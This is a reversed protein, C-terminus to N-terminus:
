QMRVIRVSERRGGSEFSAFYLGPGVPSGSADRGNWVQEHRGAGFAGDAIRAVLRGQADHVSLRATGGTAMTFALRVDGRAPNPWPQALAVHAPAADDVALADPVPVLVVAHMTGGHLATGAIWGDANMDVVTKMAWGAGSADLRADLEHIEGSVWMVLRQSTIVSPFPVYDVVYSEGLVITGDANVVWARGGNDGPWIPLMSPTHSTDRSWVTPRDMGYVYMTYGVADGLDNMDGPMSQISNPLPELIAPTHAADNNWIVARDGDFWLNMRGFVRGSEDVQAAEAWGVQAYQTPLPLFTRDFRGPSGPRESWIAADWGGGGGSKTIMGCILGADNVDFAYVNANGDGGRDLDIVDGGRWLIPRPQPDATNSFGVVWGAANMGSAVASTYGALGAFDDMSQVAGDAALNWRVAHSAAPGLMACHGLVSHGPGFATPTATLGGPLMGLDVIRYTPVGAVGLAPQALAVGLSLATVIRRLTM